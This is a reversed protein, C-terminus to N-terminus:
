HGFYACVFAYGDFLHFKFLLWLFVEYDLAMRPVVVLAQVLSEFSLILNEWYEITNDM